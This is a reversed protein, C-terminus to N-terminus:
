KKWFGHTFSALPQAKGAAQAQVQSGRRGELAGSGFDESSFGAFLRFALRGLRDGREIEPLRMRRLLGSELRRDVRQMGPPLM